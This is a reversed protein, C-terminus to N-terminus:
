IDLKMGEKAVFAGDWEEAAQRAVEDMFEDDHYPDHHFIALRKVGARKALRVGEQWTSHGWGIHKPFEEDTYTSDYAVLDAGDILGLVTEDPEGPVHETDTVYCFAKGHAEIRYATAGDPHQLPATKVTAGAVELTDGARFDSFEMDAQLASLPVPFTPRAMQGALVREVGGADILHGAHIHFHHDPAYAPTFFPFGNIHDWHTHTLLLDAKNIGRELFSTGLNRIGTGADLVIYRGDVCVELCSTNGGYRVHSASPCAISGRVGWFRVWFEM